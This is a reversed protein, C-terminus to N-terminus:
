TTGFASFQRDCLLEIFFLIFVCSFLLVVSVYTLEERLLRFQIDLLREMSSAPLEHPANFYNGPLFPERTCILEENTPAVRISQIDIHDNDHRPGDPSLEGPGDFTMKLAATLGEQPALPQLITQTDKRQHREIRAQERDVIAVVSRVKSSLHEVIHDRAAFNTAFVDDFKPPTEKIGQVWADLWSHLKKM